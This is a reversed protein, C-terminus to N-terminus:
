RLTVACFPRRTPASVYPNDGSDAFCFFTADCNRYPDRRQPRTLRLTSGQTTVVNDQGMTRTRDTPYSRFGFGSWHYFNLRQSQPTAFLRWERSRVMIDRLECGPQRRTPASYQRRKCFGGLAARRARRPRDRTERAALSTAEDGSETDPAAKKDGPALTKTPENVPTGCAACARRIYIKATLAISPDM